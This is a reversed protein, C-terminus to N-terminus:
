WSLDDPVPFEEDDDTNDTNLDVVHDASLARVKDLQALDLLHYGGSLYVIGLDGANLAKLQDSTVNIKRIRGRFLFNRAIEAEERNLRNVKVIERIQNNLLRRQRDEAQKKRRAKDAQRQEERRKLAYAKELSLEGPKADQGSRKRNAQRSRKAAGSGKTKRPQKKALGLARLQDQLSDSM